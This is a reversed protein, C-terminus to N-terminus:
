AKMQFFINLRFYASIDVTLILQAFVSTQKTNFSKTVNLNISNM